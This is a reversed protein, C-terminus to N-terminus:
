QLVNVQFGLGIENDETGLLNYLSLEPGTGIGVEDLFGVIANTDDLSVFVEGSIKIATSNALPFYNFGLGVFNHDDDEAIDNDLFLGDWFAYLGFQETTTIGGLIRLGFHETSSGGDIDLNAFYGYAGVNWNDAKHEIDANILILDFENGGNDPFPLSGTEGHSEWSAGVGARTATPEGVAAFQNTFSEWDGQLLFNARGGIGLDAEAPSTFDINRNRAGDHVYVAGQFSEQQTGLELFQTRGIGFLAFALSREFTQIQWPEYHAEFSQLPRGQGVRWWTGGEMNVKLWADLISVDGAAGLEGGLGEGQLQVLYEYDPSGVTGGFMLRARPLQFGTVFDGNEGRFESDDGFNFQYRTQFFLGIWLSNNGSADTIMFHGTEDDHMVSAAAALLSSRQEADAILEARYARDVDDGALAGGAPLGMALGALLILSKSKM